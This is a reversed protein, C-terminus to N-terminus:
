LSELIASFDPESFCRCQIAEGPHGDEPPDSWEYRKGDRDAHEDRVRNDRATRWIYGTVGMAQQRMENFQGNLKGIQDRAIRRADSEAIDDIEQFREALTEPHMGTSFAEEVATAVRDHYRDAVTKILSVNEKVFGPLLDRTSKEVAGLSVGVASRLQRDIQQRNFTSTRRGIEQAAELLERPQIRRATHQAAKEILGKAEALRPADMKGQQRREQVLLRIIDSFVGRYSAQAPQVSIRKIAQYYELRIADPQQQRPVRGRTKRVGGVTRLMRVLAVTRAHPRLPM